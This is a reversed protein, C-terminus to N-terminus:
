PTLDVVVAAAPRVRDIRAVTEGAYLPHTELTAPSMGAKPASPTLDLVGAAARRSMRMEVSMPMIRGIPGLAAHLARVGAPGRPDNSLWRRTADNPLVRHAARPWGMGFLETLLTEGSSEVLRQKYGDHAGSEETALFATGAVAAAAGAELATQVDVATAIGGAIIVPVQSGVAGLVQELTEHASATGRTHGGAEVGQAIVADAGANVAAVAEDANGVTHIWTRPTRRKPSAEWHTVVVDAEGAVEWHIRRAFPVILNVALPKSTLARVSAIEARLAAPPLIGITGLGGAESVATALASGALGSGMGAQLVPREIGLSKLLDHM